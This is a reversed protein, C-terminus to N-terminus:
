LGLLAANIHDRASAERRGQDIKATEPFCFDRKHGPSSQQRENIM